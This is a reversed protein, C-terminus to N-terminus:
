IKLNLFSEASDIVIKEKADTNDYLKQQKQNLVSNYKVEILIKNQTMFDLEIGDIYVYSPNLHKIKLFVLNEFIAGKDRFGTM